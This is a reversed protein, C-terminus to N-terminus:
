KKFEPRRKELFATIGERAAETCAIEGAGRYNIELAKALSDAAAARQITNVIISLAEKSLPMNGAMPEHPVAMEPIDVKNDPIEAGKGHLNHVEDVAAEIMEIYDGKIQKVMGIDAAEQATIKRAFCIMEHFLAAGEPWKRYPVVCGGIGPLMGLTIEPFQFTAHSLAVISHCRIALELGGGLAMGNVAAVVPKDMQDIFHLLASSDRALKVAAERKGLTKPFIGIDAGASFAKTGYGTIVFGKVSPDDAYSKLVSLIEHNLDGNIANMAQPRRITIIKVGDVEDTLLYRKFDQYASFPRNARPFGPRDKQYKESIRNTEAEGLDRMLDFPGKRFGLAVQCGFNLDEKTGIGRDAIDFSQSFLIGLIRDRVIQRVEKAVDVKIGPRPVAWKEVSRFIPAPRYHAGEEMKRTNVEVIIPNGNGM